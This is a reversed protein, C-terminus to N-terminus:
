SFSDLDKGHRKLLDSHRRHQWDEAFQRIKSALLEDSWEKEKAVAKLIELGAIFDNSKNM